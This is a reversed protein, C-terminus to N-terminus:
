TRDNVARLFRKTREQRPNRMVEASPGQEVIIGDAMVLVTDSVNEAFRMEHTVVIMTMGDDALERMVALVELGLEPDLSSTPEDFLMVKPDLALARAIAVRQQQGGSCRLPYQHAKDALGVRSLLQMSREDAEKRSRGAVREQALSVNRLVSMHPFLNFSQFVMGVSRRLLALDKRSTARGAELRIGDLMITGSSPPELYNICRLLTSKGSGSPGIIAMVNGAHVELDIGSLVTHTGYRKVVKDLVILPRAEARGADTGAAEAQM